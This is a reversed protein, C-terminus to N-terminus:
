KALPWDDPGTVPRLGSIDCAANKPLALMDISVIGPWLNTSHGYFNNPSYLPPCHWYLEYGLTRIQRILEASKSRRDNEVYLVPRLREITERAGAIV